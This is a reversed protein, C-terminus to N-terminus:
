VVVGDDHGYDWNLLDETIEAVLEDVDKIYVGLGLLDSLSSPTGNDANFMMGIRVAEAGHQQVYQAILLLDSEHDGELNTVFRWGDNLVTKWNEETVVM